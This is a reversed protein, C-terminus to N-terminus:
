ANAKEIKEYFSLFRKCFDAMSQMAFPHICKESITNGQEDEIDLIFGFDKNKGVWVNFDEGMIDSLTIDHITKQQILSSTNDWHNISKDSTIRCPMTM